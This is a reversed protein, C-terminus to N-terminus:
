DRIFHEYRIVDVSILVDRERDHILRKYEFTPDGYAIIGPDPLIHTDDASPDTSMTHNSRVRHHRFIYRIITNCDTRRSSYYSPVVEYFHFPLFRTSDHMM